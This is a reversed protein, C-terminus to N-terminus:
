SSLLTLMMKMMLLLLLLLLLLSPPHLAQHLLNVVDSAANQCCLEAELFGNTRQSVGECPLAKGKPGVVM